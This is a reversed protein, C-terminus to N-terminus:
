QQLLRVTDIHSTVLLKSDRNTYAFVNFSTKTVHQKEVAFGREELHSALWDGVNKENGSISEIEILNQHLSLLESSAKSIVLPRHHEVLPSQAALSGVVLRLVICSVLTYLLM